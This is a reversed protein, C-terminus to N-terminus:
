RTSDAKDWYPKNGGFVFKFFGMLVTYQFTLYYLPLYFLKKQTGTLYGIIALLYFIIHLIFLVLYTKENILMANATMLIIHFFPLLYRLLKHSVMFFAYLWGIENPNFMNFNTLIRQWNRGFMRIKRKFEDKLNEGAKEFAVASDDYIATKGKQVMLHPFELDHTFMPDIFIYDEKKVAYIAGNGATISCIKSEYTRLLLDYKWYLSESYSTSSSDSNIYELRGAVYGTEPNSFNSVLNMLAEQQWMANADSFVFVDGTAIKVAENQVNTKGKRGPSVYLIIGEQEYRSVIANTKDNSADSAVIIELKEKPYDLNLTNILKREIVKEENYASIIYSIKPYFKGKVFNQELMRADRLWSFFYLINLFIYYGIYTYFIMFLSVWFFVKTFNVAM